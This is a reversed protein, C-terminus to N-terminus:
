PQRAAKRLAYRSLAREREVKLYHDAGAYKQVTWEPVFLTGCGCACLRSKQYREIPDDSIKLQGM